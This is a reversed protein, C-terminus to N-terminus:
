MYKRVKRLLTTFKVGCITCNKVLSDQVWVPALVNTRKNDLRTQYAELARSIANLWEQKEEISSALLVFSKKDSGIQIQYKQDLCM